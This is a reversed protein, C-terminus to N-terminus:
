SQPEEHPAPAWGDRYTKTLYQDVDANGLTFKEADWTLKGGNHRHAAIGLLNHEILKGSYDFNCLTTGEGKCAKIWENYHGASPPITQEPRPFNEFQASPSLVLQGYDATLVGESGVFCVGIAWKSIDTDNGVLPQLKEARRDM